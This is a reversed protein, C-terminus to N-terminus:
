EDERSIDNVSAWFAELAHTKEEGYLERVSGSATKTFVRIPKISVIEVVAPEGPADQHVAIEHLQEPGHVVLLDEMVSM